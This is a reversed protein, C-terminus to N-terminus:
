GAVSPGLQRLVYSYHMCSRYGRSADRLNPVDALLAESLELALMCISCTRGPQVTNRYGDISGGLPVCRNLIAHLGQICYNQNRAHGAPAYLVVLQEDWPSAPATRHPALRKSRRLRTMLGAARVITNTVSPVYLKAIFKRSTSSASSTPTRPPRLSAKRHTLVLRSSAM